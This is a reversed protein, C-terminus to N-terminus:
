SLTWAVVGAHLGAVRALENSAGFVDGSAGGLAADAWWLLALAV